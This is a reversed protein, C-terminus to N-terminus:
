NEDFDPSSFLSTAKWKWKAPTDSLKGQVSVILYWITYILLTTVIWNAISMESSFFSYAGVSDVGSVIVPSIVLSVGLSIAVLLAADFFFNKYTYGEKKNLVGYFFLDVSMLFILLLGFLIHNVGIILFALVIPLSSYEAIIKYRRKKDKTTLESFKLM